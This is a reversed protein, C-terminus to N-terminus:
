APALGPIVMTKASPRDAAESLARLADALPWRSGALPTLDLRGAAHLAIVPDFGGLHGMSFTHSIGATMTDIPRIPAAPGGVGLHVVHGGMAVAGQVAPLVEAAAGSADVALDVGLGRTLDLLAGAYGGSDVDAATWTRDAGLIGAAKARVPLLDFAAISAAGACRALAVAALGLPGCGFVAVSMGPRLHRDAEFLAVYSVAAPECLVGIDYVDREDFRERLPELSRARAAPVVAYEALGGDVNFGCFDGDQCANPRGRRCARCWGCPRLTEVAVADGVQVAGAGPGVEVVEGAFEHGAVIPMGMRYPLVVYGDADTQTMRLTSVAIGAARVRVVIDGSERIAPEPVDAVAWAPHRWVQSAQRAWRGATEERSPQFGPRPDWEGSIVLARM